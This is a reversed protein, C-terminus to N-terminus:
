GLDGWLTQVATIAAAAATETRLIRPGLRVAVFGAAIAQTQETDSLGGEAGVLLSIHETPTLTSLRAGGAPALVLRLGPETQDLWDALRTVPQIRPVRNRGCQACASTAVGRWHDRKADARDRRVSGASRETILPVITDVGLEVAKQIAYDMCQGRSVAQALTVRLAPEAERAVFRLQQAMVKRPSAISLRGHYEGGHGDFVIVDDGEALRLVRVLHHAADADLAVADRGAIPESCYARPNTMPFGPIEGHLARLVRFCVFSDSFLHLLEARNPAGSGDDFAVTTVADRRM